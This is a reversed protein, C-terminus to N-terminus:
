CGQSYRPLAGARARAQGPGPQAHESVRRSGLGQQSLQSLRNLLSLRNLKSVTLWKKVIKRDQHAQLM